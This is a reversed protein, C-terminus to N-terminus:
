HPRKSHTHRTTLYSTPLRTHHLLIRKTDYTNIRQAFITRSTEKHLPPFCREVMKRDDHHHLNTSQRPVYGYGIGIQHFTDRYRVTRFGFQRQRCPPRGITIQNQSNQIHHHAAQWQCSHHQRHHRLKHRSLILSTTSHEGLSKRPM